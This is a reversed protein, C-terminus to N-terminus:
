FVTAMHSRRITFLQAIEYNSRVIHHIPWCWARHPTQAHRTDGFGPAREFARFYALALSAFTGLGEMLM